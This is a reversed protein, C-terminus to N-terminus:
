SAIEGPNYWSHRVGAALFLSGTALVLDEKGALRLAEALAQEVTHAVQAPIGYAAVLELIKDPEIARPHYSRTFIIRKTVPSLEALMGAIDKDESAGFILVVKRDPFYTELTQRLRLASDRNHASDIVLPPEVRLVEFRGPWDVAAFGKRIDGQRVALGREEAAELTAYATAANEVQHGGLLPIELKVPKGNRKGKVRWVELSQGDLATAVGRFAYDRGVEVLPAEREAAIREFVLRAEDKQPSIVVPVGPKIIGAKEAAIEALTNGLVQTHDYSISTITTVLPHVVNTADLRGGLGVEAVVATAGQQAFHLFALATTIEFTTIGKCQDLTPRLEDVLEILAQHAIPEGDMRIREAYDQMHPSTYLGVTFGAAQLANACLACVSGKGKTGAVHIVPYAQEPNGLPKLLQRMRELDWKEPLNSLNHTLSYDVFSYLYELTAQYEAETDM